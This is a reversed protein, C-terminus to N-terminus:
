SLVVIGDQAHSMVEDTREDFEDAKIERYDTITNTEEHYVGEFIGMPVRPANKIEEGLRGADIVFPTDKEPNLTLKKFYEVVDKFFNLVKRFIVKITNVISRFLEKLGEWITSFAHKYPM